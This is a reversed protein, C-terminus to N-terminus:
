AAPRAHAPLFLQRIEQVVREPREEQPLHGTNELVVLRSGAILEHYRRAVAPDVLHDSDGTIVLAPAKINAVLHEREPEIARNSMRALFADLGNEGRLPLYYADVDDETIISPDFVSSKLGDRVMSRAPLARLISGVVPWTAIRFSLPLEASTAPERLGSAGLLALGAVRKPYLIATETAVHGGMSNGVLVAAKIGVADMYGVLMRAFWAVDYRADDPKDSFGYGPLDIAHVRFHQALPEIVRRWSYTSAPNGHVLILDPGSGAQIAFLTLGEVPVYVGKTRALQYKSIAFLQQTTPSACTALLMVVLM